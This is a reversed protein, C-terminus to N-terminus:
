FLPYVQQDIFKYMSFWFVLESFTSIRNAIFHKCDSLLFIKIIVKQLSDLQNNIINNLIYIKKNSISSIYSVYEEIYNTNDFSLFLCDVNENDLIQKIKQKYIDSSYLRDIGNEHSSKWTRISIGLINNYENIEKNIKSKISKYEEMVEENFKIKKITKLIRNKLPYSILLQDYNWDILIHDSFLNSISSNGGRDTYWFENSIHKQEKEEDKLVM